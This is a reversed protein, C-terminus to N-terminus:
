GGGPARPATAIARIAELLRERPTPKGLVPSSANALYEQARPTFTGGTLFLFRRALEPDRRAIDAHLDIGLLDPLMLDCIVVDFALDEALIREAERGGGAAVVTHGARELLRALARVLHPEDDILLLRLPASPASVAQAPPAPAHTPAHLPLVVTFTSGLGPTSSVEFHGGHESVITHCIALGLGVGEGPGRTTFFPDFVHSLHEPPIGRGTDRVTIRAETPTRTGCVTILHREPHGEDIARAANVLLNLFVQSLRGENGLVPLPGTLDQEIRARFRIENHTMAVAAQVVAVLDCSARAEPDVRSFTQLDAVIARMRQAGDEAARLYSRLPDIEALRAPDLTLAHRELDEITAQLNHLLWALPNNLEHAVGAALLGVSAMRSSQALRQEMSRRETEDRVSALVCTRGAVDMLALSVNTSLLLGDKRPILVDPVVHVGRALAEQVLARVRPHKEEPFYGLISRGLLDERSYGLLRTFAGNVMVISHDRPDLLALGDGSSEFLVRFRQEREQIERLLRGTRLMAQIHALLVTPEVPLTLYGDAGGELGAIRSAEDPYAASLHLVPIVATRPDARLRRCVEFGSLDPLKVDLVIGDPVQAALTLAQAGTAAELVQYGARRLHHCTVYRGGDDDDVVLVVPAPPTHTM